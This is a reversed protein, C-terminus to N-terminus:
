KFYSARFPTPVLGYRCLLYNDINKISLRPLGETYKQRNYKQRNYKKELEKKRRVWNELWRYKEYLLNGRVAIGALSLHKHHQRHISTWFYDGRSLNISKMNVYPIYSMIELVIEKPINCKRLCAYVLKALDIIRSAGYIDDIENLKKAYILHFDPVNWLNKRESHFIIKKKKKGPVKQILKYTKTSM